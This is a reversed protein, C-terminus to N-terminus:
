FFINGYLGYKSFLNREGILYFGDVMLWSEFLIIVENFCRIKFVNFYSGVVYKGIKM